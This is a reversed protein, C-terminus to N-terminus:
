VEFWDFSVSYTIGETDTLIDIEMNYAVVALAEDAIALRLEAGSDKRMSLYRKRMQKATVGPIADSTLLGSVSGSQGGLKQTVLVPPGSMPEHIEQINRYFRSREPNLFCCVDSGDPRMLVPALRRVTGTVIPNTGSQRENVIALVRWGLQEYSPALADRYEYSTGGASVESALVEDVYKWNGDEDRRQIAFSDPATARTWSM